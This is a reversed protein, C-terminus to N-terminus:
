PPLLRCYNFKCDDDALVLTAPFLRLIAADDTDIVASFTRVEEVIDDVAVQIDACQVLDGTGFSLETRRTSGSFM